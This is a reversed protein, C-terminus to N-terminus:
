RGTWTSTSRRWIARTVGVVEADTALVKELDADSHTEVLTGLGLDRATALM